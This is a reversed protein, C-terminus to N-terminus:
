LGTAIEEMAHCRSPMNDHSQEVTAGMVVYRAAVLRPSQKEDDGGPDGMRKYEIEGFNDLLYGISDMMASDCGM